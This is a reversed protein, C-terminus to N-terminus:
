IKNLYISRQVLYVERLRPFKGSGRNLRLSFGNVPFSITPGLLKDEQSLLKDEGLFIIEVLNSGM